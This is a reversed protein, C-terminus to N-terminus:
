AAHPIILQLLNIGYFTSVLNLIAWAGFVILLGIIAATVASQGKESKQTDGGSTMVTIGGVLLIIFLIIATIVLLITILASVLGGATIASLTTFQGVPSLNVQALRM